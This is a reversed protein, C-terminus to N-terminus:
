KSDNQMEQTWTTGIDEYFYGIARKPTGDPYYAMHNKAVKFKIKNQQQEGYFLDVWVGHRLYSEMNAVYTEVKQYQTREVKDASNKFGRMSKLTDKNDKLWEKVKKLSLPHDEPLLRVNEAIQKNQSPGRAERAKRLRETAAAKQEATMPKRAKRIKKVPKDLGLVKLAEKQKAERTAKMKAVKEATQKKSLKKM